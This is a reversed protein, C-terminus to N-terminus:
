ARRFHAGGRALAYLTFWYGVFLIAVFVIGGVRGEGTAGFAGILGFTWLLAGPIAFVFALIRAFMSHAIIGIGALLQVAAIIAFIVGFVALAGSAADAVRQSDFGFSSAFSSSDALNHIIGGGVILVVGGAIGVLSLLILFIGALIVM